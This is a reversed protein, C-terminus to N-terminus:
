SQIGRNLTRFLFNISYDINTSYVTANSLNCRPPILGKGGGVMAVAGEGPGFPFRVHQLFSSLQSLLALCHTYSSRLFPGGRM